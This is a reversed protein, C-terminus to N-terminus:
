RGMEVRLARKCLLKESNTTLCSGLCVAVYPWHEGLVPVVSLSFQAQWALLHCYRTAVSLTIDTM